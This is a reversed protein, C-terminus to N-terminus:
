VVSKRDEEDEVPEDIDTESLDVITMDSSDAELWSALLEDTDDFGTTSLWTIEAALETDLVYLGDDDATYLEDSDYDRTYTGITTILAQDFYVTGTTTGTTGDADIEGNWLALNVTQATDGTIYVFYYRTWVGDTDPLNIDSSDTATTGTGTMATITGLEKNVLYVNADGAVEYVLVSIVYVTNASLSIDASLYGFSTDKINNIMLIGKASDDLTPTYDSGLLIGSSVSGVGDAVTINDEGTGLIEIGGAYTATWTNTSYLGDTTNNNDISSFSGNTITTTAVSSTLSVKTVNDSSSASSYQSNTLVEYTPETILVTGEPIAESNVYGSSNGLTVKIEVDTSDNAPKIYFSYQAWGNTDDTTLDTGTQINTFSALVTDTGSEYLYINASPLVSGDDSIVRIWLTILYNTGVVPGDITLSDSVVGVQTSVNGDNSFQYVNISSDTFPSTDESLETNDLYDGTTYSTVTNVTKDTSSVGLAIQETDAKDSTITYASKDTEDTGESYLRYENATVTDYEVSDIYLTGDAPINYYVNGLGINAYITKSSTTQNFIYLEYTVWEGYTTIATSDEEVGISAYWYQLGSASVELASSSSQKLMIFAGGTTVAETKLTVSVKISSSAPVSFSSSYISAVYADDGNHIMYVYDDDADEATGPNTLTTNYYALSSSVSDWDDTDVVGMISNVNSTITKYGHSSGSPEAYSYKSWDQAAQPYSSEDELVYEFSGNSIVDSSSTTDVTTNSALSNEVTEWLVIILTAAIVIATVVAIIAIVLAKKKALNNNAFTSQTRM